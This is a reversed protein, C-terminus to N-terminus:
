RGGSFDMGWWTHSSEQSQRWASQERPCRDSNTKSRGQVRQSSDPIRDCPFRALRFTSKLAYSWGCHLDIGEYTYPGLIYVSWRMPQNLPKPIFNLVWNLCLLWLIIYSCDTRLGSVPPISWSYYNFVDSCFLYSFMTHKQREVVGPNHRNLLSRNLPWLPFRIKVM